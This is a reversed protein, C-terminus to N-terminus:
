DDLILLDTRALSSLLGPYTAEQRAQALAHLLPSTRYYRVSFGM